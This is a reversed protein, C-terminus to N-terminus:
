PNMVKNPPIRYLQQVYQTMAQSLLRAPGTAAFTMSASKSDVVSTDITKGTEADVVDVRLSLRSPRGSWSTVRHEWNTITPLAVYALHEAQASAIAAKSDETHSGLKVSISQQALATALAQAAQQGSGPTKQNGYAGDEPIAIYVTKTRDLSEADHSLQQVHRTSACGTLGLIVICLAIKRM